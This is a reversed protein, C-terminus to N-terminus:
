SYTLIWLLEEQKNAFVPLLIDDDGWELTYNGPFKKKMLETCITTVQDFSLFEGYLYYETNLKLYVEWDRLKLAVEGM